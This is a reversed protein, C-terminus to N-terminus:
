SKLNAVVGVEGIKRADSPIGATALMRSLTWWNGTVFVVELVQAVTFCALATALVLEDPVNTTLLADVLAIAAAEPGTLDKPVRCALSLVKERHVGLRQALSAHQDVEYFNSTQYGVRVIILERLDPPLLGDRLLAGSQAHIGQRVKSALHGSIRQGNTLKGYVGEEHDNHEPYPIRQPYESKMALASTLIDDTPCDPLMKLAAQDDSLPRSVPDKLTM